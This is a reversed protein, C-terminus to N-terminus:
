CDRQAMDVAAELEEAGHEMMTTALPRCWGGYDKSTMAGWGCWGGLAKWQWRWGNNITSYIKHWSKEKIRARVGGDGDICSGGFTQQQANGVPLM